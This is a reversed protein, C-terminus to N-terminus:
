KRGIVVQLAGGFLSTRVVDTFGAERVEEALRHKLMDRRTPTEPNFPLWYFWWLGLGLRPLISRPTDLELVAVTGGDTLIRRAERLVDLRTTRPMEHLAHPIVVTDFEGNAFDTHSADMVSFQVNAPRRKRRAVRIQGASLDIAKVPSQNGVRAAIFATTNGTGCCMDLVREGRRLGIEDVLARRVRAEGGLPLFCWWTVVDYYHCHINDYFWRYLRRKAAM